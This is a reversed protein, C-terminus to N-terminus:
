TCIAACAQAPFKTAPALKPGVIVVTLLPRQIPQRHEEDVVILDMPTHDIQSEGIFQPEGRKDRMYFRLM